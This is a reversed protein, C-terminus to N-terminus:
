RIGRLGNNVIGKQTTETIHLGDRAVCIVEQCGLKRGALLDPEFIDRDLGRINIM